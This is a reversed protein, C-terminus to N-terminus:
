QCREICGAMWAAGVCIALLPLVWLWDAIARGLVRRM